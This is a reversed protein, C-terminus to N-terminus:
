ILIYVHISSVMPYNIIFDIVESKSCAIHLAALFTKPSLTLSQPLLRDESFDMTKSQNYATDSFMDSRCPISPVAMSAMWISLVQIGASKLLLFAELVKDVHRTHQFENSSVYCM